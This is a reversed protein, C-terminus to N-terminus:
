HLCKRVIHKYFWNISRFTKNQCKLPKIFYSESYWWKHKSARIDGILIDHNVFSWTIWKTWKCENLLMLWQLYQRYVRGNIVIFWLYIRYRYTRVELCWDTSNEIWTNYTSTLECKISLVMRAFYAILNISYIYLKYKM